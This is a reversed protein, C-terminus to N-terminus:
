GDDRCQLISRSVPDIVGVLRGASGGASTRIISTLHTNLQFGQAVADVTPNLSADPRLHSGRPCALQMLEAATFRRVGAEGEALDDADMGAEDALQRLTLGAVRRAMCVQAGIWDNITDRPMGM